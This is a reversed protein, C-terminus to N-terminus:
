KKGTKAPHSKPTYEIWHRVRRHPIDRGLLVSTLTRTIGIWSRGMREKFYAAIGLAVAKAQVDPDFKLGELIKAAKRLTQVKPANEEAPTEQELADAIELLHGAVSTSPAATSRALKIIHSYFSDGPNTALAKAIWPWVTKMRSDTITREIMKQIEPDFCIDDRPDLIKPASRFWQVFSFDFGDPILPRTLKKAERILQPPPGTVRTL